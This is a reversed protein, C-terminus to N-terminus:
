TRPKATNGRMAWSYCTPYKAIDHLVHHHSVFINFLIIQGEKISGFQENSFERPNPPEFHLPMIRDEM